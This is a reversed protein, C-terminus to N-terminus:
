NPNIFDNISKFLGAPSPIETLKNKEPIHDGEEFGYVPVTPILIWKWSNKFPIRKWIKTSDYGNHWILYRANTKNGYSKVQTEGDQEKEKKVEVIIKIDVNSQDEYIVIDARKKKGTVVDVVEGRGDAIPIEVKIDEEPYNLSYLLNGLYSQRVKEEKTLNIIKKRILCKIKKAM